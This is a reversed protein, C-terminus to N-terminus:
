SVREIPLVASQQVTFPVGPIMSLGHGTVVVTANQGRDCSIGDITFINHGAREAFSRAATCGAVQEAHQGAMARAGEEAATLATQRATFWLGVQIFSTITLMLTPVVIAATAPGAAGRDGELSRLRGRGFRLIAATSTM